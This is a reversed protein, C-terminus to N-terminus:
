NQTKHSQICELADPLDPVTQLIDELRALNMIKEIQRSTHMLILLGGQDRCIRNAALFASLGSSDAFSVDSLDLILYKYGDATIEQIISSLEPGATFNLYPECIRLVAYETQRDIIFEM